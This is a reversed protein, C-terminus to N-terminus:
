AGAGIAEISAEIDTRLTDSIPASGASTAAAEQGESSAVYGLFAKVLDAKAPDEYATCAISYSILVLPYAGSATTARDLEVVVAHESQGEARPSADVVAAAAEPSYAVWEEGVKIRATGLSGAKSADAYGITGEGGQVTQVVGSTGQASQGGSVPWDGSAEHPWAEGATAVLYETFNETTGSEDSRNVPTIPLDPLTADPNDAAIEPANWTTITRNFIGAIVAPSLNLEDVGPLNYIVAIPSIYLPVEIAEGDTCREAAQTLEDEKLAADSGAFDTGGELFQTRGGGSGVPDYSVNVDPNASQFGARWAEMASEQSSAGAGVLEGSLESGAETADGAPAGAAVPDDSGCAALSLALAGTLAIAGVRRHLSVNM